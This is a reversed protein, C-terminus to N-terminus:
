PRSSALPVCNRTRSSTSPLLPGFLGIARPRAATRAFGTPNAYFVQGDARMWRHDSASILLMSNAIGSSKREMTAQGPTEDPAAWDLSLNRGLAVTFDTDPVESVTVASPFSVVNETSAFVFTTPFPM